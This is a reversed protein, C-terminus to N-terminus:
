MHFYPPKTNLELGTASKAKALLPKFLHSRFLGKFGSKEPEAEEQSLQEIEGEEILYDLQNEESSVPSYEQSVTSQKLPQRGHKSSHTTVPNAKDSYTSRSTNRGDMGTYVM